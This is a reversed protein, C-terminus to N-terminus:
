QYYNSTISIAEEIAMSDSDILTQLRDLKPHYYDEKEIQQGLEIQASFQHAVLESFCRVSLTNSSGLNVPMKRASEVFSLKIIQKAIDGVFTMNRIAIGRGKLSIKGNRAQLFFQNGILPSDKRSLPGFTSFIRMIPAREGLEETSLKEIALKTEGYPSRTNEPIIDNESFGNVQLSTDGYVAGSSPIVLTGTSTLVDRFYEYRGMFEQHALQSDNALGMSNPLGFDFVFDYKEENLQRVSPQYRIGFQQLASFTVKPYSTEIELKYLERNNLGAALFLSLWIGLQGSAGAVLVKSGQFKSYDIQATCSNLYHITRSMDTLHQDSKLKQGYNPLPRPKWLDWRM